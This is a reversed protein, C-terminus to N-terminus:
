GDMARDLLALHTTARERAVKLAGLASGGDARVDATTFAITTWRIRGLRNRRDTDRALALRGAHHEYSDFEIAIRLEPYAADVRAVFRGEHRIEYQFVPAPLGHRRLLQKLRTEMASEPVGAHPDRADLQARLVGVGNRGRGRKRVVFADLRDPTTLGRTMAQDLAMEVTNPSVVAALGLLTQEVTTVSIADVVELDVSDLLNTEHVVFGLRQARLGRRCTIEILDTRGGPLGWIAAASRHSAAALQHAALIAALLQARWSDPAGAIRYAGPHVSEWRGRRVRLERQDITFGIAVAQAVSFLGHQRAATEAIARDRGDDM